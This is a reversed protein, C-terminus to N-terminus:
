PVSHWFGHVLLDGEVLEVSDFQVQPAMEPLNVGLPGCWGPAEADGFVKGSLFLFLEDACGQRIFSGHVKGGGEVMLTELGSLRLSGLWDQLEPREGKCKLVEVGLNELALHKKTEAKEGCVVVRRAGDDALCAADTPIKLTSDLVIRAPPVRGKPADPLRINLRPDDALVTGIGVLIGQHRARLRHSLMRAKEGTIWKSAGTATAIKGDLTAAAKLTIYPREAKELLKAVREPNLGEDIIDIIGNGM